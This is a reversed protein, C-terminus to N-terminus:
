ILILRISLSEDEIQNDLVLSPYLVDVSRPDHINTAFKNECAYVFM